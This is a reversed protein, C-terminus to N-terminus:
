GFGRYYFVRCKFNTWRLSISMHQISQGESFNFLHVFSTPETWYNGDAVLDRYSTPDVLAVRLLFGVSHISPPIRVSDEM